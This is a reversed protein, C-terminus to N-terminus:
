RASRASRQKLAAATNTLFRRSLEPDDIARAVSIAGVLASLTFMAEREAVHREPSDTLDALVDLCERVQRTYSGQAPRDARAVEAALAAVGCGAEPHDRHQPSLYGDVLKDYGRRGGDPRSRGDM